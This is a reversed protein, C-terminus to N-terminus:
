IPHPAPLPFVDEIAGNRMAIIERHMFVTSDAYGVAFEIRDGVAFGPMDADCDLTLHEASFALKVAAPVRLAQSQMPHVGHYKWGADCVIRRVTPRSLVTAVLTLAPELPMGFEQRYRLDGFVGGGAQVETVGSIRSTVLYTGTGGCSVIEVAFGAQACSRAADTLLAVSARIAAEKAAPDAIGTTQGEWAMLGCFKLHQHAAVTRALVAAAPGPAVGARMLGIDVEIVVPITVGAESAHVNLLELHIPADVAAIVRATRNLAALKRLGSPAVVQSAILVDVIGARVMTEAEWVTACTVGRAGAAILCQAVVPSRLAKTHPRWCKGGRVVIADALHRVNREFADLDLALFPTAPLDQRTTM